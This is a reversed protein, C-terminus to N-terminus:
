YAGVKVRYSGAIVRNSGVMVLYSGVIVRYADAIVVRGGGGKDLSCCVTDGFLPTNTLHESNEKFPTESCPHENSM